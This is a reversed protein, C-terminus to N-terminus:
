SASERRVYSAPFLNEIGSRENVGKWWADTTYDTVRIRDGIWLQMMDPRENYAQWAVVWDAESEEEDESDSIEDKMSEQFVLWWQKRLRKVHTKHVDGFEKVKVFHDVTYVRSYDLRSRIDMKDGQRKPVVRIWPMM